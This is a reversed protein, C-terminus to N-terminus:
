PDLPLWDMIDFRAHPSTPPTLAAAEYAARFQQLVKDLEQVSLNNQERCFMLDTGHGQVTVMIAKPSVAKM